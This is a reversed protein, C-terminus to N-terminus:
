LHLGRAADHGLWWFLIVASLLAFSGTLVAPLARPLFPRIVTPDVERFAKRRSCYYSM